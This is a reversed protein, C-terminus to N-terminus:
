VTNQNRAYIVIICSFHFLTRPREEVPMDEPSDPPFDNFLSLLYDRFGDDSLYHHTHLVIDYVEILHSLIRRGEDSLGLYVGQNKLRWNVFEDCATHFAEMTQQFERQKKLLQTSDGSRVFFSLGVLFPFLFQDM